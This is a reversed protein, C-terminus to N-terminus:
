IFSVFVTIQSEARLLFQQMKRDFVESVNVFDFEQKKRTRVM